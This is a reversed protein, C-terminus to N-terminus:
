EGELRELGRHSEKQPPINQFFTEVTKTLVIFTLPTWFLQVGSVKIKHVFLYIFLYFSYFFSYGVAPNGFNINPFWHPKKLSSCPTSSFSIILDCVYFIM